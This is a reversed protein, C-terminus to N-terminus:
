KSMVPMYFDHGQNITVVLSFPWKLIRLAFKFQVHEFGRGKHSSTPIGTSSPFFSLFPKQCSQNNKKTDTQSHINRLDPKCM